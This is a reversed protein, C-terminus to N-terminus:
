FSINLSRQCDIGAFYWYLKWSQLERAKPPLCDCMRMVDGVHWNTEESAFLVAISKLISTSVTFFIISDAATLSSFSPILSLSVRAWKAIDSKGALNNLIRDSAGESEVWAYGCPRPLVLALFLEAAWCFFVPESFCCLSHLWPFSFPCPSSFFALFYTDMPYKQAYEM